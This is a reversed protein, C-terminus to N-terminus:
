AQRELVVLLLARALLLLTDGLGGLRRLRRLVLRLGLRALGFGLWRRSRFGGLAGLGLGGLSALLSGLLLVLLRRLLDLDRDGVRRALDHPRELAGGLQPDVARDPIQTRVRELRLRLTVIWASAAAVVVVARAGLHRR